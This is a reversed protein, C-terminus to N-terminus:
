VNNFRTQRYAMLEEINVTICDLGSQKVSKEGQPTTIIRGKEGVVKENFLVAKGYSFAHIPKQSQYDIVTIDADAGVSLHGKNKLGMLCAASYSSKFVFEKLTLAGFKVLSLGNAIIVNRPIGGGDTCFSDVLFSKNSRRSWAFYFLSLSPNVSFSIPVDTEKNLWLDLGESCDSLLVGDETFKHVKAYGDVIAQKLGIETVPYGKSKM